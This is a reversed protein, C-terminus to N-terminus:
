LSCTRDIYVANKSWRPCECGHMHLWHLKRTALTPRYIAWIKNLHQLSLPYSLSLARLHTVMAVPVNLPFRKHIVSSPIIINTNTDTQQGKRGRNMWKMQVAKIIHCNILFSNCFCCLRRKQVSVSVNVTRKSWSKEKKKIVDVWKKFFRCVKKKKEANREKEKRNEKFGKM